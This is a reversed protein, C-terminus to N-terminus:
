SISLHLREQRQGIINLLRRANASRTTVAAKVLAAAGRASCSANSGAWSMSIHAVPPDSATALATLSIYASTPEPEMSSFTGIIISPGAVPRQMQESVKEADVM